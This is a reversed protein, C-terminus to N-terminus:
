LGASSAAPAVLQNMREIQKVLFNMDEFPAGGTVGWHVRGKKDILITSHLEMEEFDDYSRFRKANDHSATDSLFRIATYETGKLLEANASPQNLSVALVSANLRDWEKKNGQLKKLQDMCHVCERGLYFVLIVNKDQYGSLSVPKGEADKVELAPAAHPEWVAPGFRELSIQPYSREPGPAYNKPQVKLGTALAREVLRIGKDAGSATFLLQQFAKEAEARQGLAHRAEVMGALAFIDNRTLKLAKDYAEVALAPSKAKLYADGLAIYLSEPYFPPDNDSLQMEYQKQASETLLGLGQVTEGRALLLRAKLESNQINYFAEFPKNKDLDKRL